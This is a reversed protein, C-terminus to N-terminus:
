LACLSTDRLAISPGCPRARWTVLARWCSYQAFCSFHEVSETLSVWNFRIPKIDSNVSIAAVVRCCSRQHHFHVAVSRERHPM